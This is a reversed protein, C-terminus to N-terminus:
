RRFFMQFLEPYDPTFVKQSAIQEPTEDQDPVKKQANAGYELLLAAWVRNVEESNHPWKNSISIVMYGQSGGWNPNAGRRLLDKAVDLCDLVYAAYLGNWQAARYYDGDNPGATSTVRRLETCSKCGQYYSSTCGDSSRTVKASLILFLALGLAASFNKM